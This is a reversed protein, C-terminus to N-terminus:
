ANGGIIGHLLAVACALGLVIVALDLMEAELAGRTPTMRARNEWGSLLSDIVTVNCPLSADVSSSCNHSRM